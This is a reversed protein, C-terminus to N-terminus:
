RPMPAVPGKSGGLGGGMAVALTPRFLLTVLFSGFGFLLAKHSMRTASGKQMKDLTKRLKPLPNLRAPLNQTPTTISLWAEIVHKRSKGSVKVPIFQVQPSIDRSLLRRAVGFADSSEISLGVLLPVLVSKIRTTVM